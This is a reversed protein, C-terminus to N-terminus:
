KLGEVFYMEMDGKNKAAIEGRYTCEFTDKVLEYTTASINIKDSESSQEMRAATNVTDGWIDYAFKKVGVIGAVVAGSHIGIRIRFTRDPFQQKRERMFERIELAARVTNEAHSKDAAPLGSVALYADGITKIKEIHYKSIINDFAKFCSHLEDVLEQPTFREGAKTFDVFDTFIVSVHDFYRAESSGREKLEDAIEQPLINRLLDDSKQKESVIEQTRITVEEELREKETELYRQKEQEQQLTKDSLEQIQELQTQLNKSIRAVNWALYISMSIPISLLASISLILLILGVWGGNVQLGGKLLAIALITFTFLAFFLIGFGVIRAGPVRRYIASITLIISELAVVLIILMMTLAITSTSVIALIASVVCAIAIIRFRLKSNGFLKNSVGSLSLCTLAVLCVSTYTAWKAWEPDHIIFSLYPIFFLVSVSICFLSFYLNSVEARRYMWLFLHSLGLAMFIGMLLLLMASVMAMEEALASVVFNADNVAMSFGAEADEYAEWEEKSFYNAYRVAIVHSGPTFSQTILPFKNPDYNTTNKENTGIKGFTRIRKGDIYIESAGYHEITLALPIDTLTSDTTFHLRFWGIGKFKVDASDRKVLLPNLSEWSSDNINVQAWENNDGAKYVWSEKLKYPMKKATMNVVPPQANALTFVM